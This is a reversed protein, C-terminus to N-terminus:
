NPRPATASSRTRARGCCRPGCRPWVDPEGTYTAYVGRHLQQWRGTRVMSKVTEPGIGAALAQPRSIVGHQTGLLERCTAPLVRAMRGSEGATAAPGAM